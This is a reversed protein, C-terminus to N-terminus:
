IRCVTGTCANRCARRLFGPWSPLRKCATYCLACAIGSPLLGSSEQYAGAHNIREIASNKPLLM